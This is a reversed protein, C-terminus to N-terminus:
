SSKDLPESAAPKEKRHSRGRFLIFVGALILLLPWFQGLAGFFGGFVLFLALSILLLRFGRGIQERQSGDLLGMFMIGLGAFGPILTWAYAWTDWNGTANQFYLLLGIGGIIAGPVALPPSGVIAGILFLAGIGVMILPWQGALDFRAAVEPFAQLLLFLLGALILVLGIVISSQKKM